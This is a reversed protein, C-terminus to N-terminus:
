TPSSPAVECRAGIVGASAVTRARALYHDVQRRM